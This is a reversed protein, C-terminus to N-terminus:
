ENCFCILTFKLKFPKSVDLDEEELHNLITDETITSIDRMTVIIDHRLEPHSIVIVMKDTDKHGDSARELVSRFMKRVQREFTVLREFLHTISNLHHPEFILYFTKEDLGFRENFDSSLLYIKYPTGM